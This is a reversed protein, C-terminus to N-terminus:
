LPKMRYIYVGNEGSGAGASVPGDNAGRGAPCGALSRAIHFHEKAQVFFKLARRGADATMLIETASGPQLHERLFRLLPTFFAERYLVESAIIRSYRGQHGNAVFDVLCVEVTDSLDNQLANIRAFLLADPNNDSIVVPFGRQAAFLGAVGLGAGIELVKDGQMPTQRQMYMALPLSAPWIKAWLPLADAGKHSELREVQRDIYEVMDSIQLFELATQGVRVTDFHVAHASSALGVLEDLRADRLLGQFDASSVDRGLLKM